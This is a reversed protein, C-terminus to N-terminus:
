PSLPCRKQTALAPNLRWEPSVKAILFHSDVFMKSLNLHGSTAVAVAKLVHILERLDSTSCKHSNLVCCQLSLNIMIKKYM